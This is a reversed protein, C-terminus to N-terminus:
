RHKATFTSSEFFQTPGDQVTVGEAKVGSWLSIDVAQFAIPMKLAKRLERELAARTEPSHLWHSIYWLSGVFLVALVAASIVVIRALRRVARSAVWAKRFPFPM